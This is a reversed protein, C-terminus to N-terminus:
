ECDSLYEKWLDYLMTSTLDTIPYDPIHFSFGYNSLSGGQYGTTLAPDGGGLSGMYPNPINPDTAVYCQFGYSPPVPVYDACDIHGQYSVSADTSQAGIAGMIHYIFGERTITPLGLGTMHSGAYIMVKQDVVYSTSAANAVGNVDWGFEHLSMYNHYDTRWQASTLNGPAVGIDNWTNTAAGGWTAAGCSGGWDNSGVWDEYYGEANPSRSEDQFIIVISDTDGGEFEHYPDSFGEKGVGDQWPNVQAFGDTAYSGPLVMLQELLPGHVAPDYAGGNCNFPAGGVADVMTHGLITRQAAPLTGTAMPNAGAGSAGANGSLPYSAWAVWDEPATKSGPAAAGTDNCDDCPGWSAGLGGHPWLGPLIYLHGTYTPYETKIQQFAPEIVNTKFNVAAQLKAQFTSGFTSTIDLFVYINSNGFCGQDCTVEQETLGFPVNCDDCVDAVKHFFLKMDPETLCNECPAEFTGDDPEHSTCNLVCTQLDAYAGTGQYNPICGFAPDCDYTISGGPCNPDLACGTCSACAALGGNTNNWTGLGTGPDTCAGTIPDCNWSEVYCPSVNAAVAANCLALTSFVGTGNGPDTCTYTNSSADYNCNWSDQPACYDMCCGPGNLCSYPGPSSPSQQQCVNNVCDWTPTGTCCLPDALCLAETAYGAGASPICHCGGMPDCEWMFSGTCLTCSAFDQTVVVSVCTLPNCVIAAECEIKWCQAVNGNIQIVNGAVYNTDLDVTACVNNIIIGPDTCDVLRYCNCPTPPICSPCDPFVFAPAGITVTPICPATACPGCIQVEYCTNLQLPAPPVGGLTIVQGVYLSLDDTVVTCAAASTCQCSFTGWTWTASIRGGGLGAYWATLKTNLSTFTDTVTVGTVGLLITANRLDTWNTYQTQTYPNPGGFFQIAWTGAQHLESGAHGTLECCNSACQSVTTAFKLTLTSVNDFGNGPTTIFENAALVQDIWAAGTFPTAQILTLTNLNTGNCSGTAAVANCECLQYCVQNASCCTPCDIYSNTVTIAIPGTSPCTFPVCNIEYCAGPHASIEIVTGNGVTGNCYLSLDTTTIIQNPAGSVTTCSCLNLEYCMNVPITCNNCDWNPDGGVLNVPNVLPVGAPCPVEIDVEWCRLGAADGNDWEIIGGVYGALAPDDSYEVVYVCGASQLCVGDQCGYNADPNGYIGCTARRDYIGEPGMLGTPFDTSFDATTSYPGMLADGNPIIGPCCPVWNNSAPPDECWNLGPCTAESQYCPCDCMTTCNGVPGAGGFTLFDHGYGLGHLIEHMGVRILSFSNAIVADGAKRWNENYDFLLLGSLPSVKNIGVLNANLNSTFCLGLIGSAGGTNGCGSGGAPDIIGFDAFGIRLDGIGAVANADTFSTGNGPNVIAADAPDGATYGTEYGLDTFTVTLNAGYGCSTNFMGELMAKIDNFMTVMEAKFQVHSIAYTKPYSSCTPSIGNPNATGPGQEVAKCPGFGAYGAGIITPFTAGDNIFSYTFTISQATGPSGTTGLLQVADVLETWRKPSGSECVPSWSKGYTIMNPPMTSIDNVSCPNTGPSGGTCVCETLKYCANPPPACASCDTHTNTITVPVINVPDCPCPMQLYVPFREGMQRAGIDYSPAPTINVYPLNNYTDSYDPIGNPNDLRLLSNTVQAGAGVPLSRANNNSIEVINLWLKGDPGFTIDNVQANCRDLDPNAGGYWGSPSSADPFAKITSPDVFTGAGFNTTFWGFAAAATVPDQTMSIGTWGNTALEVAYKYVDVVILSFGSYDFPRNFADNPDYYDNIAMWIKTGDPSFSFTDVNDLAPYNPVVTTNAAPDMQILYNVDRWSGNNAGGNYGNTSALGIAATSSLATTPNLAFMNLKHPSNNTDQENLLVIINNTQNIALEGSGRDRKTVTQFRGLAVDVSVFPAGIGGSSFKIAKIHQNSWDTSNAMPPLYFFHWYASAATGTTTSVCMFECANAVLTTNKSGDVVQGKGSNLSMDVLSWKIPGNDCSNQIVYYQHWVGNTIGGAANPIVLAGQAPYTIGGYSTYAGWADGTYAAGTSTQMLTHTRDYIVRGDTYFMLDGAAFANGGITAAGTSSHVATQRFSYGNTGANYSLMNSAGNFNAVPVGTNFEIGLQQGYFWNMGAVPNGTTSCQKYCDSYSAFEVVDNGITAGTAGDVTIYSGPNQCSELLVCQPPCPDILCYTCDPMNGAGVTATAIANVNGNPLVGVCNPNASVTWCGSYVIAGVTIDAQVVFGVDAATIGTTVNVIQDAVYTAGCCHSVKVCTQGATACDDCGTAGAFTATVVGTPYLTPTPGLCGVLKKWCKNVPDPVSGGVTIEYADNGGGASVVSPSNGYDVQIIAGTVCNELRIYYRCSACDTLANNISQAAESGSAAPNITIERCWCEGALHVVQGASFYTDILPTSNAGSGNETYVIDTPDNCNTLKYYVVSPVNCAACDIYPGPSAALVVSVPNICTVSREVEYCVDGQLRVVNGVYPNLVAQTSYQVAGTDCHTLKYCCDDTASSLLCVDCNNWTGTITPDTVSHVWHGCLDNFALGTPASTWVTTSTAPNVLTIVSLQASGANNLIHLKLEWQNISTELASLVYTESTAGTVRVREIGCAYQGAAFSCVTALNSIATHNGTADDIAFLDNLSAGGTVDGLVYYDGSNYDVSLDHGVEVTANTLTAVLSFGGVNEWKQFTAVSAVMDASIFYNWNSYDTDLCRPTTFTNTILEPASEYGDWVSAWSLDNSAETYIINGHLDFAIDKLNNFPGYTQTWSPVSCVGTLIDNIQYVEGDTSTFWLFEEPITAKVCTPTGLSYHTISYTTGNTFSAPSITAVTPLQMPGHAYTDALNCCPLFAMCTDYFYDICTRCDEYANGPIKWECATTILHSNNQETDDCRFCGVHDSSLQTWTKIAPNKCHNDYVPWDAHTSPVTLPSYLFYAWANQNTISKVQEAWTFGGPDTIVVGSGGILTAAGTSTNISYTLNAGAAGATAYLTSATGNEAELWLSTYAAPGSSALLSWTTSAWDFKAIRDGFAAYTVTKGWPDDVWRDSTLAVPAKGSLAGGSFTTTNIENAAAYASVTNTSTNVIGISYEVTSGAKLGLFLQKICLEDTAPNTVGAGAADNWSVSDIAIIDAYDVLEAGSISQPNTVTNFDTNYKQYELSNGGTPSDWLYLIDTYPNHSIGIFDTNLGALDAVKRVTAGTGTVEFTWLDFWNGGANNTIVWAHESPCKTIMEDDGGPPAVACFSFAPAGYAYHTNLALTGQMTQGPATTVPADCNELICHQIENPNSLTGYIEPYDETWVPTTAGVAITWQAIVEPTSVFIRGTKGPDRWIGGIIRGPTSPGGWIKTGSGDVIEMDGKNTAHWVNSANIQHWNIRLTGGPHADDFYPYYLYSEDHNSTHSWETDMAYFRSHQGATVPFGTPGRDTQSTQHTTPNTIALTAANFSLTEVTATMVPSLDSGKDTRYITAIKHMMWNVDGTDSNPLTISVTGHPGTDNSAGTTGVASAVPTSNVDTIDPCGNAAITTMRNAVWGNDTHAAGLSVQKYILCVGNVAKTDPDRHCCTVFRGGVGDQSGLVTGLVGGSPTLGSSSANTFTGRGGNGDMDVVGILIGKTYGNTFVWFLKDQKGITLALADPVKVVSCSQPMSKIAGTNTDGNMVAHTSDYVIRGDTYFLVDGAAYAVAGYTIGVEATITCSSFNADLSNLTGNVPPTAAQASNVLVKDGTGWQQYDLNSAM